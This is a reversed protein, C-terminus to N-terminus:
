QEAAIWEVHGDGYLVNSGTGGHNLPHEFIVIRDSEMSTANSRVLFYERRPAFSGPCDVVDDPLFGTAVLQKIWADGSGSVAGQDRIYCQLALGIWHLRAACRTKRTSTCGPCMSLRLCHFGGFNLLLLFPAAILLRRIPSSGSGRFKPAYELVIPDHHNDNM